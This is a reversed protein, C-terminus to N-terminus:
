FHVRRRLERTRQWVKGLQRDQISKGHRVRVHSAIRGRDDRGVAQRRKIDAVASVEVDGQRADARGRGQRGTLAVRDLGCGTGGLGHRTRGTSDGIAYWM